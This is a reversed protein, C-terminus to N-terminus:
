GTLINTNPRNYFKVVEMAGRERKTGRNAGVDERERETLALNSVEIKRKVCCKQNSVRVLCDGRGRGNGKKVCREIFIQEFLKKLMFIKNFPIFNISEKLFTM